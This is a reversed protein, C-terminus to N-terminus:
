SRQVILRDEVDDVRKMTQVSALVAEKAEDDNVEGRLMVRDGTVAIELDLADAGIAEFTQARVAAHLMADDLNEKAPAEYRGDKPVSLKDVVRAVGDVSRASTAALKKAERPVEGKLTVTDDDVEIEISLAPTGVGELLAGRTAAHIRADSLAAQVEAPAEAASPADSCAGALLALVTLTTMTTRTM